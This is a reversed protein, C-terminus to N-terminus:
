REFNWSSTDVLFTELERLRNDYYIAWQEGMEVTSLADFRKIIMGADPDRYNCIPLANVRRVRSEEAEVVLDIVFLATEGTGYKGADETGPDARWTQGSILNGTSHLILKEGDPTMVTEWPQVVHPHHGWVIDVGADICRLFLDRKWSAPVRSYEVGGHYSLIFVDAKGTEEALGTVFEEFADEKYFPVVNLYQNEIHRNLFSTVALFGIKVGQVEFFLPQFREDPHECTGNFYIRHRSSLEKMAEFSKLVSDAGMDLSHNNALSFVNFGGLVAAKVYDVPANFRPYGQPEKGPDFVFELNAFSLDAKWVTDKIGRYISDYPRRNFNVDHAM